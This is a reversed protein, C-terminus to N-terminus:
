LLNLTQKKRLQEDWRFIGRLRQTDHPTPRMVHYPSSFLLAGHICIRVHDDWTARGVAAAQVRVARSTALRM